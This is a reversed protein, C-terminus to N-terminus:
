EETAPLEFQDTLRLAVESLLAALAGRDLKDARLDQVERALLSQLQDAQSRLADTFAKSQTLLEERVGKDQQASRKELEGVQKEMAKATDRLDRALDKLAAGRTEQERAVRQELVELQRKLYTELADLRRDADAKLDASEKLIREELRAFRREYDRMHGGFLIERIKDVNETGDASPAAGDPAPPRRSKATRTKAM